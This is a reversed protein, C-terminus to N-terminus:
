VERGVESRVPRERAHKEGMEVDIVHHSHGINGLRCRDVRPWALGCWLRHLVQHEARVERAQEVSVGRKGLPLKSGIRGASEVTQEIHEAVAGYPRDPYRAM